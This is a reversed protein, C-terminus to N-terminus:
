SRKCNRGTWCRKTCRLHSTLTDTLEWKETQQHSGSTKKIRGFYNRIPQWHWSSSRLNGGKERFKSPNTTGEERQPLIMLALCTEYLVKNNKQALWTSPDHLLTSKSNQQRKEIIAVGPTVLSEMMWTKPGRKRSFLTVSAQSRSSPSSPMAFQSLARPRCVM